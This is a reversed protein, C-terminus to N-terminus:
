PAIVEVAHLASRVGNYNGWVTVTGPSVPEIWLSAGRSGGTRLVTYDSSGVGVGWDDLDTLQRSEGTDFLATIRVSRRERHSLRGFLGSIWIREIGRVVVTNEGALLEFPDQSPEYGESPQVRTVRGSNHRSTFEARGNTDTEVKGLRRSTLRVEGVPRGLSDITTVTFRFVPIPALAFDLVRDEDSLEIEQTASFYEDAKSVEVRFSGPSLGDFRYAGGADTTRVSNQTSGRRRLEVRADPVPAGTEADTATGRLGLIIPTLRAEVVTSDTVAASLEHVQFGSVSVRLTVTGVPLTLPVQDTSSSATRGAAPGDLVTVTLRTLVEGTQANVARVIVLHGQTEQRPPLLVEVSLDQVLTLVREVVGYGEKTIHITVTGHALAPLRFEGVTDTMAEAGAQPGSAVWVRAGVVPVGTRADKVVGSVQSATPSPASPAVPTQAGCAVGIILASLLLSVRM